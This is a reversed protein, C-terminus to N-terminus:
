MYTGSILQSSELNSAASHMDEISKPGEFTNNRELALLFDFESKSSLDNILSINLFTQPNIKFLWKRANHFPKSYKFQKCRSSM